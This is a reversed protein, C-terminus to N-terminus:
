RTSCSFVRASQLPSWTSITYWLLPLGSVRTSTLVMKAERGHCEGCLGLDEARMAVPREFHSSKGHVLYAAVDLGLEEVAAAYDTM